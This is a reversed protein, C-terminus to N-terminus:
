WLSSRAVGLEFGGNDLGGFNEEAGSEACGCSLRSVRLGTNGLVVRDM